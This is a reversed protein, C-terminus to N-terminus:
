GDDEALDMTEESVEAQKASGAKAPRLMLSEVLRKAFGKSGKNKVYIYGFVMFALAGILNVIMDKMTDLRGIDLYGGNVTINGNATHITTSIIDNVNVLQQSQTPDLAVSNISNVLFDKQMDQGFFSDGVFEIIEWCAGVTMAFCFSTLAMYGASLKVPHNSSNLLYAMSFGVACALFGNITHLITDWFPLSVYFHDVEGLIQAAFIFAYIIAEFVPPIDIHFSREVLRPVNLLVLAVLCAFFNEYHATMIQRVLCLAALSWLVIYFTAVKRSTDLREIQREWFGPKSPKPSKRSHPKPRSGTEGGTRSTRKSM